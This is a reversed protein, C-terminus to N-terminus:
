IKIGGQLNRTTVLVHCTSIKEAPTWHEVGTLYKVKTNLYIEELSIIPNRISHSLGPQAESIFKLM